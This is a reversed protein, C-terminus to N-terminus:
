NHISVLGTYTQFNPIDLPQTATERNLRIVKGFNPTFRCIPDTLVWAVDCHPDLELPVPSLGGDTVVLIIDFPGQRSLKIRYDRFFDDFVTGGRGVVKVNPIESARTIKTTAEWHPEADVPVVYLEARHDFVKAESMGFAIDAQSMSGSTDMLILVKPKYTCYTPMYLKQSIFRRRFNCYNVQNGGTRKAKSISQDIYDHYTTQPDTLEDLMDEICGPTTGHMRKSASAARLIQQMLDDRSVKLPMHEGCEIGELMKLNHIDIGNDKLLNYIERYMYEANLDIVSMDTPLLKKYRRSIEIPNEQIYVGDDMQKLKLYDIKTWIEPGEDPQTKTFDPVLLKKLEEYLLPMGMEGNWIPHESLNYKTNGARNTDRWEKEIMNNAVYDICLYWLFSNRRGGRLCHLLGVHYGEHKLVLSIQFSNRKRLCDPHFYINIGDTAATPPFGQKTMDRLIVPKGVCLSYIFPNGGNKPSIALRAFAKVLKTQLIHLDHPALNDPDHLRQSMKPRRKSKRMRSTM